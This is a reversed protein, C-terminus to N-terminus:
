IREEFDIGYEEKYFQFEKKQLSMIYSNLKQSPRIAFYRNPLPITLVGKPIPQANGDLLFVVKGCNTEPQHKEENHFPTVDVLYGSPNFWVAHHNIFLYEGYKESYRHFFLWGYKIEGGYLNQVSLVNSFCNTPITGPGPLHLILVLEDNSILTSIELIVHEREEETTFTEMKGEIVKRLWIM